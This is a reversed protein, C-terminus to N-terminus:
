TRNTVATSKERKAKIFAKRMNGAKIRHMNDLRTQEPEIYDVKTIPYMSHSHGTMTIKIRDGGVFQSTM